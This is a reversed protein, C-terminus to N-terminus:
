MYRTNKRFMVFCIYFKQGSGILARWIKQYVAYNPFKFARRASAFVIYLTLQLICMM